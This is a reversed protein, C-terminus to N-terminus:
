TVEVEGIAPIGALASAMDDATADHAIRESWHGEFGVFFYGYLDSAAAAITILQVERTSTVQRRVTSTLCKACLLVRNIALQSSAM